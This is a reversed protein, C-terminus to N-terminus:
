HKAAIYIGSGYRMQIKQAKPFFQKLEDCAKKKFNKYDSREMTELVRIFRPTRGIFDQLIVYKRSVRHMEKLMKLRKASKVGHLVYSATVIDFSGDKFQSLDEGNGVEFELEPHKRRAQKLMNESFDIGTVKDAGAKKLSAGWAGTGTGIDLVAKDSLQIQKNIEKASYSFSESLVEDAYKYVPAIFNFIFKARKDANDSFYHFVSM